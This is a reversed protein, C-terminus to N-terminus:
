IDQRQSAGGGPRNLATLMSCWVVLWLLLVGCYVPKIVIAPLTVNAMSMVNLTSVVMMGAPFVVSWNAPAYRFDLARSCLRWFVIAGLLCLWWLAGAWLFWTVALIVPKMATFAPAGCNSVIKEGALAAIALAGMNIWWSPSFDHLNVATFLWRYFILPIIIMYLMISVAWLGTLLAERLLSVSGGTTMGLVVVSCGSVTCLLWAGDLGQSFHSKKEAMAAGAIMACMLVGYFAAGAMLFLEPLLCYPTLQVYQEGLICTAAVLTLHGPGKAAGTLERWVTAPLYWVRLLALLVFVSYQVTNLVLLFYSLPRFGTCSAGLCLIGTAMVLAFYYFQFRGVLQPWFARPPIIRTM